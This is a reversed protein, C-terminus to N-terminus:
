AIKGIKNELDDVLCFSILPTELLHIFVFNLTANPRKTLKFERQCSIATQFSSFVFSGLKIKKVRSFYKSELSM